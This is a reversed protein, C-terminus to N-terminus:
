GALECELPHDNTMKLIAAFQESAFACGPTTVPEIRATRNVHSGAYDMRKLLPNDHEYVPGAHLGIRMLLNHEFGMGCWNVNEMRALLRLAFDAAHVVSDFVAFLGDGWTNIFCPPKITPENLVKHTVALIEPFRRFHGDTL